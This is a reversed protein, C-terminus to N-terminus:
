ARSGPPNPERRHRREGVVRGALREQAVVGLVQVEAESVSTRQAHLLQQLTGGLALRPQHRGDGLEGGLALAPLGVLRPQLDRLAEQEGV